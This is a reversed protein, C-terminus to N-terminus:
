GTVRSWGVQGVQGVEGDRREGGWCPGAGRGGGRRPLAVVVVPGRVPPVQEGCLYAPLHRPDWGARIRSRPIRSPRSSRPAVPQRPSRSDRTRTNANVHLAHHVGGGRDNHGIGGSTINRTIAPGSRVIPQNGSPKVPSTLTGGPTRGAAAREHDTLGSTWSWLTTPLDQGAM